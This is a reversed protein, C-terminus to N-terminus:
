TSGHLDGADEDPSRIVTLRECTIVLSGCPWYRTRVQFPQLLRTTADDARLLSNRIKGVTKKAGLDTSPSGIRAESM